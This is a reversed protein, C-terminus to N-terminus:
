TCEGIKIIYQIFLSLTFIVNAAVYHKFKYKSNVDGIVMIGKDINKPRQGMSGWLGDYDPFYHVLFLDPKM